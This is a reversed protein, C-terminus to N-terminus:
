IEELYKAAIENVFPKCHWKIEWQFKPPFLILFLIIYHIHLCRAWHRTCYRHKTSNSFCCYNRKNFQNYLMKKCKIATSFLSTFKETPQKRQKSTGLGYFHMLRLCIYNRRLVTHGPSRWEVLWLSCLSDMEVREGWSWFHYHKLFLVLRLSLLLIFFIIHIWKGEEVVKDMIPEFFLLSSYPLGWPVM